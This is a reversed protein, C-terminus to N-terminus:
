CHLKCHNSCVTTLDLQAMLEHQREGSTLLMNLCATFRLRALNFAQAAKYNFALSTSLSHRRNTTVTVTGPATQLDWVVQKNQKHWLM